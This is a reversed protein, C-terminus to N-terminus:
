RERAPGAARAAGRDRHPRPAPDHRPRHQGAAVTRPGHRPFGRIRGAPGQCPAPGHAAPRQWGRWVSRRVCAALAKNGADQGRRRPRGASSCRRFLVRVSIALLADNRATQVNSKTSRALPRAALPSCPTPRVPTGKATLGAGALFQDKTNDFFNGSQGQTAGDHHYYGAGINLSPLWGVRTRALEAAAAQVSVQAAAVALPRGGALRLATALNIPLPRDAAEPQAPTLSLPASGQTFIPGRLICSPDPAPPPSPPADPPAALGLATTACWGILVAWFALRRRGRRRM